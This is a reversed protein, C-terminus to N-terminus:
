KLLDLAENRKQIDDKLKGYFAATKTKSGIAKIGRMTMCLHEVEIAVIVGDVNANEYVFRAVQDTLREQVQLRKAFCDVIRAIKSLGIIRGRQPIYAINAVGVFPLMHHECISQVPIDTITVIESDCNEEDFFKLLACPDANMGSLIEAYMNAVRRPTEKLGERDVDEGLASLLDFVAREVKQMEM